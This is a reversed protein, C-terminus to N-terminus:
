PQWRPASDDPTDPSAFRFPVSLHAALDQGARTAVVASPHRPGAGDGEDLNRESGEAGDLNRESGEAGALNREAAARYVTALPYEGAPDATIALLQVFWDHVTDGDWVAEIAAVRGPCGAARATLSALDVPSDPTRAVADGYHRCRDGVVDQAERLGLGYARGAEYATRIAQFVADQLVYGDVQKRIGAPLREWWEATTM